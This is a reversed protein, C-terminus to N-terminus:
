SAPLEEEIPQREQQFGKLSDRLQSIRSLADHLREKVFFIKLDGEHEDALQEMESEVCEILAGIREADDALLELTHLVPSHVHM